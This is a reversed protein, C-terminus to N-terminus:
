EKNEYFVLKNGFPDTLCVELDNRDFGPRAYKYNKSILKKHLNAIGEVEIRIAIGPSSDGFHESLHLICNGLSVQFYLPLNEEYRHEWDLSFELFNLYF